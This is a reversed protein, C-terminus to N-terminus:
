SPVGQALACTAMGDASVHRPSLLRAEPGAAALAAAEAVSGTHYAAFSAASHTLTPQSELMAPDLPILPIALAQALPALHSAKHSITALATIAMGPRAASELASRFSALTAGERFGFGAVIM